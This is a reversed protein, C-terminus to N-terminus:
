KEFVTYKERYNLFISFISSFMYVFIYGYEMKLYFFNIALLSLTISVNIITNRTLAFIGKSRILEYNSSVPLVNMITIM